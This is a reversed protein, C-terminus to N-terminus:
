LLISYILSFTNSVRLVKHMTEIEALGPLFILVSGRCNSLVTNEYRGFRSIERKEDLAAILRAAASYTKDEIKPELPNVTM